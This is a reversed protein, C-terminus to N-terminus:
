KVQVLEIRTGDPDTCFVIDSVATETLTQLHARGGAAEIRRCVERLDSVNFCLHTIGRENMPRRESPGTVEPFEAVVLELMRGGLHLFAVKGRYGPLETLVEFSSGIDLRRTVSFGLADCYFRISHELDGCCVGGHSFEVTPGVMAKEAAGGTM